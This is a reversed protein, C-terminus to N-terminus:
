LYPVLRLDADLKTPFSHNLLSLIENRQIVYGVESYLSQIRNKTEKLSSRHIAKVKVSANIYTNEKEFNVQYQCNYWQSTVKECQRVDKM